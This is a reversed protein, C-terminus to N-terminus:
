SGPGSAAFCAAPRATPLTSPEGQALRRPEEVKALEPAARPSGLTAPPFRQTPWSQSPEALAAADVHVVVQYREGPSGPDLQHLASELLLVLADAQQQGMTSRDLPEAAPTLVAAWPGGVPSGAKSGGEASSESSGEASPGASAM